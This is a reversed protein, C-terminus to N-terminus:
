IILGSQGERHPLRSGRREKPLPGALEIGVARQYHAVKL